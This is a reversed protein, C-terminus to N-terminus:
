ASGPKTELDRIPSERSMPQHVRVYNAPSLGELALDHEVMELITASFATRPKWGLERAAKSADGRLEIVDSPRLYAEDVEVYDRWDLGVLAFATATFERVTRSTGTAVVYDDPEDQQLM